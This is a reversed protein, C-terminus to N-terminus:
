TWMWQRYEAMGALVKKDRDDIEQEIRNSEGYKQEYTMQKRTELPLNNSVNLAKSFQAQLEGRHKTIYDYSERLWVGAAVLQPREPDDWVVGDMENEVFEKIIAFNVDVILETCDTWVRPIADRVPQHCPKFWRYIGWTTDHWWHEVDVCVREWWPIKRQRMEDFWTEVCTIAVPELDKSEELLKKLKKTQNTWPYNMM